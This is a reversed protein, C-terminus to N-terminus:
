HNYQVNAHVNTVSFMRMVIYYTSLQDFTPEDSVWYLQNTNLAWTVSANTNAINMHLEFTAIKNTFNLLSSDFYLTTNTTVNVNYITKEQVLSVTTTGDAVVNYLDFDQYIGITDFVPEDEIIYTTSDSKEYLALYEAYTGRWVSVVKNTETFPSSVYDTLQNTNALDATAVNISNILEDTSAFTKVPNTVNDSVSYM